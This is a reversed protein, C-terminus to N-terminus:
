SLIAEAPVGVRNPKVASNVATRSRGPVRDTACLHLLLRFRAHVQVLWDLLIERMSWTLDKQPTMNYLDDHMHQAFSVPTFRSAKLKLKLSPEM